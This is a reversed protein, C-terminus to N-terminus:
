VTNRTTLAVVIGGLGTADTAEKHWALLVASSYLEPSRMARYIYQVLTNRAAVDLPAIAQAIDSTRCQSLCAVVGATAQAKLDDVAAGGLPPSALAAALAAGVNGGALLSRVQAQKSAALSALDAQNQELVSDAFQDEEDFDVDAKRHSM